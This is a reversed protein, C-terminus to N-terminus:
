YVDNDLFGMSCALRDQGCFTQEKGLNNIIMNVGEHRVDEEKGSILAQMSLALKSDRCGFLKISNINSSYAFQMMSKLLVHENRNDSAQIDLINIQGNPHYVSFLMVGDSTGLVYYARDQTRPRSFFRWYIYEESKAISLSDMTSLGKTLGIDAMQKCIELMNSETLQEALIPSPYGEDLSFSNDRNTLSITINFASDIFKWGVRKHGAIAASNPFGYALEYDSASHALSLRGIRVFLNLGQYEPICFVNNCIATQIICGSNIARNRILSYAAAISGKEDKLLYTKNLPSGALWDIRDEYGDRRFAQKWSKIYELREKPWDVLAEFFFNKESISVISAM